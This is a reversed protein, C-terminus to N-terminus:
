GEAVHGILPALRDRVEQLYLALGNDGGRERLRDLPTITWCHRERDADGGTLARLVRKPSRPATDDKCATLEHSSECPNFGLTQRETDLRTQEAQNQPEFGSLVWSEREAVALGVVIVAGNHHQGRAQELGVRREPEDDQDRVLMIADLHTFENLLYDIARRAAAADALGPIGQFHGHHPKIGAERALRKIAKWTLLQGENNASEWSRQYPLQDEDLWDIAEVLVRDALETATRFDAEAEYVVAFRKTM